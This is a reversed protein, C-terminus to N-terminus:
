EEEDTLQSDPLAQEDAYAPVAEQYRDAQQMGSLVQDRKTTDIPVENGVAELGQRLHVDKQVKDGYMLKLAKLYAVGCLYISIIGVIFSAAWGVIPIFDLAIGLVLTIVINTLMGGLVNKLFHERFPVGSIESIKKYTSWLVWIYAITEIGYFPVAMFVGGLLARKEIAHKIDKDLAGSAFREIQTLAMGYLQENRKSNAM